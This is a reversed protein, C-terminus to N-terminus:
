EGVAGDVVQRLLDAHGNHRAYEEIMHILLWRLSVKRDDSGVDDLAHAQAIARSQECESRWTAFAEAVDATEVDDFDGDPNSKSYYM